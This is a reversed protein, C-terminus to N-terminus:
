RTCAWNLCGADAGCGNGCGGCHQPDFRPDVCTAGCLQRPARCAETPECVGRACFKTADCPLNCGGCHRPDNQRDVCAGDCLLLGSPCRVECKGAACVQGNACRTGCQGCNSADTRLDVCQGACETCPIPPDGACSFLGLALVVCLNLARSVMVWIRMAGSSRSWCFPARAVLRDCGTGEVHNSRAHPERGSGKLGPPRLADTMSSPLRGLKRRM